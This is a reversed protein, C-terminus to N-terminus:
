QIRLSPIWLAQDVSLIFLYSYHCWSSKTWKLLCWRFLWGFLFYLVVRIWQFSVITSHVKYLCDMTRVVNKLSQIRPYHTIKALELFTTTSKKQQLIGALEGETMLKKGKCGNPFQLALNSKYRNKDNEGPLIYVSSHCKKETCTYIAM